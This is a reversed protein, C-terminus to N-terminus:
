WGLGFTLKFTRTPGTIGEGTREGFQPNRVLGVGQFNGFDAYNKENTVNLLDGRV